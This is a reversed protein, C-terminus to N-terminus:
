FAVRLGATLARGPLPVLSRLTSITSASYGLQDTVNDLRAFLLTETPGWDVRRTLWLDIM